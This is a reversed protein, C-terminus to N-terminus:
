HHVGRPVVYLQGPLLELDLDDLKIVLRGSLVLFLEDTEPQNHRALEGKAIVVKVDYDNMLAATTQVWPETASALVVSTDIAEVV